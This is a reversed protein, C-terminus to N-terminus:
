RCCDVYSYVLISAQFRMSSVLVSSVARVPLLSTQLVRLRPRKSRAHFVLESGSVLAPGFVPPSGAAQAALFVYGLCASKLAPGLRAPQDFGRLIFCVAALLPSCVAFDRGARLFVAGFFSAVFFWPAHLFDLDARPCFCLFKPGFCRM